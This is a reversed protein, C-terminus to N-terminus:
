LTDHDEALLSEFLAAVDDQRELNSIMDILSQVRNRPVLKEVNQRFKETLEEEKM